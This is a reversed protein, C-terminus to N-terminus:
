QSGLNSFSGIMNFIPLLVSVIIAAIITAMGLTFAPEIFSLQRSVGEDFKEEYYDALDLLVEELKGTEEGIAIINTVMSDFIGIKELSESLGEGKNVKEKAEVLGKKIIDNEITKELTDLIIIMSLGANILIGMTRAFRATIFDKMIEELGPIRSILFNMVKKKIYDPVVKLYGGILLIVSFLIYLWNDKTFYSFAMLLKTILPLEQGAEQIINVLEPLVFFTFISIVAISVCILIIPYVMAGIIRRQTKANKEFYDALKKFIEDLNGSIEGIKVMNIFILPLKFGSKEFAESLSYGKQIGISTSEALNRVKKSVSQNKVMVLGKMISLGSRLILSMQKCFVAMETNSLKPYSSVQFSIKSSLDVELRIPKKGEEALRAKAENEDEADVYGKVIQNTEDLASYKYRPM